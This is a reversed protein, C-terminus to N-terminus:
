FVKKGYKTTKLWTAGDEKYINGEEELMKLCKEIRGSKRIAKESTWVDFEM